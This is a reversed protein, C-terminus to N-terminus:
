QRLSKKANIVDKLRAKFNSIINSIKLYDLVGNNICERAKRQVSEHLPHNNDNFGILLRLPSLLIDDISKDNQVNSYGTDLYPLDIGTVIQVFKRTYSSGRIDKFSIVEINHEKIWLLVQKERDYFDSIYNEINYGHGGLEYIDGLIYQMCNSYALEEIDRKIYLVRLRYKSSIKDVLCSFHDTGLLNFFEEGSILIFRAKVSISKQHIESLYDDVLNINNSLLYFVIDSHQEIFNSGPPSDPYLIGDKLLIDRNEYLCKQLSTSGTKHPGVHLIFDIM